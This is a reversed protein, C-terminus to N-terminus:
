ELVRPVLATHRVARRRGVRVHRSDRRREYQQECHQQQEHRKERILVCAATAAM